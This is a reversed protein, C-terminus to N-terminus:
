VNIRNRDGIYPVGELNYNLFPSLSYVRVGYREALERKVERTQGEIQKVWDRSQHMDANIAQLYGSVYPQNGLTGCDHAVVIINAAGLYAAFHMATTITSWSVVLMDPHPPWDRPFQAEHVRNDLHDFLHVNPLDYAWRDQSTGGVEHRPVITPVGPLAEAERAIFPHHKGVLYTPTIGWITAVQNIAITLKGDFFRQDLYDLTHGAAIVYIDSGPHLGRFQTIGM